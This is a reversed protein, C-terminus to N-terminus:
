KTQYKDEIVYDANLKVKEYQENNTITWAACKVGDICQDINNQSIILYDIVPLASWDINGESIYGLSYNSISNIYILDKYYFSALVVDVNYKNILELSLDIAANEKFEIFLTIGNDQAFVLLSELNSCDDCDVDDHLLVPVGDRLRVDTELITYGDNVAAVFGSLKNEDYGRHSIKVAGPTEVIVPATEAESGCGTLLLLIFLYKM